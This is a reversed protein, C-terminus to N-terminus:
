APCVLRKLPNKLLPTILFINSFYFDNWCKTSSNQYFKELRSFCPPTPLTTKVCNGPFLLSFRFEHILKHFNRLIELIDSIIDIGWFCSESKSNSNGVPCIFHIVHRCYVYSVCGPNCSQFIEKILFTQMVNIGGGEWSRSNRRFVQISDTVGPNIRPGFDLVICTITQGSDVFQYKDWWPNKEKRIFTYM